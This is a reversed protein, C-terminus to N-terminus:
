KLNYKFEFKRQSEQQQKFQQMNILLSKFKQKTQEPLTILDDDYNQIDNENIESQITFQQQYSGKKNSNTRSSHQNKTNKQSDLSLECLKLIKLDKELNLRYTNLQNLIKQMTNQNNKQIM